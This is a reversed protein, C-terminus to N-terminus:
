HRGHDEISGQFDAAGYKESGEDNDDRHRRDEEKSSEGPGEELWERKRINHCHKRRQHHGHSHRGSETENKQLIRCQIM